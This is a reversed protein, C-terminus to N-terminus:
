TAISTTTSSTREPHARRSRDRDGPAALQRLYATERTSPQPSYDTWRANQGPIGLGHRGGPVREDLVELRRRAAGQLRRVPEDAGPRRLRGRLGLLAPGSCRCASGSDYGPLFASQFGTRAVSANKKRDSRRSRGAARESAGRNYADSQGPPIRCYQWREGASTKAGLLVIQGVHYSVHALARHLAEVVPM